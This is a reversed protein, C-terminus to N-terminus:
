MVRQDHMLLIFVSESAMMTQVFGQVDQWDGDLSRQREDLLDVTGFSDEEDNSQKESSSRYAQPPQSPAALVSRHNSHWSEGM